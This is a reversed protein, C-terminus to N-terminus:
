DEETIFEFFLRGNLDITLTADIQQFLLIWSALNYGEEETLFLSLETYRYCKM